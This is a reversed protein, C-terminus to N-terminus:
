GTGNTPSDIVQHDTGFNASTWNNGNGSSDKGLDSADDFKLHFGQNGFTTGTPDIPKWVGNKTEGFQTPAYSQGDAYIFEAMYGDFGYQADSNCGISHTNTAVHFNDFNGSPENTTTRTKPGDGNVYYKIKNGSTQSTDHRMVIHYWGTTDRYYGAIRDDGGSTGGGTGKMGYWAIRDRNDLGGSTGGGSEFGFAAGNGVAVGGNMAIIQQWTTNDENHYTASRKVWVSFTFTTASSVTGFTRYLRTSTNTGGGGADFRASQEIQYDYFGSAGSQGSSGTLIDKSFPM